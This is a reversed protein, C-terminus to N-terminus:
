VPAIQAKTASIAALTMRRKAGLITVKFKNSRRPKRNTTTNQPQHGITHPPHCSKRGPGAEFNALRRSCSATQWGSRLKRTAEIDMELKDTLVRRLANPAHARSSVNRVSACWRRIAGLPRGGRWGIYLHLHRWAHTPVTQEANQDREAARTSSRSKDYRRGGHLGYPPRYRRRANLCQNRAQWLHMSIGLGGRHKGRRGSKALLEYQQTAPVPTGNNRHQAVLGGLDIRRLYLRHRRRRAVGAGGMGFVSNVFIAGTARVVGTLRAPERNWGAPVKDPILRPLAM